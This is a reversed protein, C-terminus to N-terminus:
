SVFANQQRRCDCVVHKLHQAIDDRDPQTAVINGLHEVMCTVNGTGFRKCNRCLRMSQFCEFLMDIMLLSNARAIEARAAAMPLLQKCIRRLAWEIADFDLRREEFNEAQWVTAIHQVAKFDYKLVARHLQKRASVQHRKWQIANLSSRKVKALPAELISPKPQEVIKQTSVIEEIHTTAIHPMKRALVCHRKSRRKEEECFITTQEQNLFETRNQLEEETFETVIAKCSTTDPRTQWQELMKTRVYAEMKPQLEYLADHYTSLTEDMYFEIRTKIYFNEFQACRWEATQDCGFKLSTFNMNAIESSPIPYLRMGSCKIWEDVLRNLAHMNIRSLHLTNM